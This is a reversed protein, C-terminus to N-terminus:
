RAFDEKEWEALRAQFADEELSEVHGDLFLVNRRGDHHAPSADWAVPIRHGRDKYGTLDPGLSWAAYSTHFEGEEPKEGTAPCLYYTRDTLCNSEVLARLFAPNGHGPLGEEHGDRYLYLAKGIEILNRKCRVLPDKSSFESREQERESWYSTLWEEGTASDPVGATSWLDFGLIDVKAPPKARPDGPKDRSESALEDYRYPNGWPDLFENKENVREREFAYLITRPGGNAPDGDLYTVLATTSGDEGGDPPYLGFLDNYQQLAVTLNRIEARCESRRAREEIDQAGVGSACALALVVVPAFRSGIM